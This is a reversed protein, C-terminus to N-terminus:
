EIEEEIESEDVEIPSGDSAWTDTDDKEAEALIMIKAEEVDKAEVTFQCSYERSCRALGTFKPM